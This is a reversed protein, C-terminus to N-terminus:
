QRPPVLGARPQLLQELAATEACLERRHVLVVRALQEHLEVALLAAELGEADGGLLPGVELDEEDAAVVEEM